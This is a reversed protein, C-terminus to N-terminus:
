LSSTDDAWFCAGFRHLLLIGVTLVIVVAVTGFPFCHSVDDINHEIDSLIIVMYNVYYIYIHYCYM